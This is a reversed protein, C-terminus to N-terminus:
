SIITEAFNKKLVAAGWKKGYNAVFKGSTISEDSLIKHLKDSQRVDHCRTYKGREFSEHQIVRLFLSDPPITHERYGAMHARRIIDKDDFGWGFQMREDYGGIAEFDCKRMAIRGHAGRGYQGKASGPCVVFRKKGVFVQILYEAFRPGTFNDADLNCVIEGRAARHAINKAHAMHFRQFGAASYYVLRGSKLYDAMENRVWTALGDPSSYDLLVFELSGTEQNDRLNVFLTQQLHSLRGMCTICFSLDVNM